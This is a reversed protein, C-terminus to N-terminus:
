EGNWRRDIIMRATRGDVSDSELAVNLKAMLLKEAVSDGRIRAEVIEVAMLVPDSAAREPDARRARAVENKATWRDAVGLGAVSAMRCMEYRLPQRQEWGRLYQIAASGASKAQDAVISREYVQPIHESRYSHLVGLITRELDVNQGSRERLREMVIEVDSPDSLPGGLWSRILARSAEELELREEIRRVRHLSDVVDWVRVSDYSGTSVLMAGDPSFEVRRVWDAHGNCDLVIEGTDVAVIRVHWSHSSVALLRGDPSLSADELGDTYQSHGTGGSRTRREVALEERDIFAITGDMGVTILDGTAPVQVIASVAKEHATMRRIETLTAADFEILEGGWTGAFIRRDGEVVLVSSLSEGELQRSLVIEGTELNRTQLDGGSSALCVDEGNAYPAPEAVIGSLLARWRKRAERVDWDIVHGGRDVGLIWRDNGHWLLGYLEAGHGLLLADLRLSARDHVRITGDRGGTAFRDNGAAFDLGTVDARHGYITARGGSVGAHWEKVVGAMSGTIVRSGDDSFTVIPSRRSVGTMSQKLSERELDWLKLTLDESTSALTSGDPSIALGSIIARHGVLRVPTEGEGRLLTISHDASGIAVVSSDRSWAIATVPLQSLYLLRPELQPLSWEIVSGDSAVTVCSDAAENMVIRDVRSQGTIRSAVTELSKTDILFIRGSRQALVARGHRPAAAVASANYAVRRRKIGATPTKQLDPQDGSAHGEPPTIWFGSRFHYSLWGTPTRWAGMIEPDFDASGPLRTEVFGEESALLAGGRHSILLKGDEFRVGRIPQGVTAVTRLSQDGSARLHSWEWGRLEEACDSLRANVSPLDANQLAAAAAAIQGRYALAAESKASARLQAVYFIGSAVLAAFLVAIAVFLPRNRNVALRTLYMASPQRAAIPRGDLFARLDSAMAEASRYREQPLKAIAKMVILSLDGPVQTRLASPAPPVDYLIGHVLEARSEQELAKRHALLEYLVLGLGYVDSRAEALGQFQEPASYRLTGVFDGERTLDDSEGIKALGFDTVWVQGRRDILVNGPKVDRHLVGRAHAYGLAGAVALGIRAVNRHYGRGLATADGDGVGSESESAFSGLKGEALSLAIRRCREDAESTLSSLEEDLPLLASSGDRIAYFSAVVDLGFGDVFKMVFYHQGEHQDVGFVPVVNPHELRAAAHAERRFREVYAANESVGRPLVKIAVRRDLSADEAEYVVGMGGRGIERIVRFPGISDPVVRSGIEAESRKVSRELSAVAQLAVVLEPGLGRHEDAVADVDVADGTRARELAATVIEDIRVLREIEVADSGEDGADTM